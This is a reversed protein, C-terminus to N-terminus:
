RSHINRATSLQKIRGRNAYRLTGYCFTIFVTPVSKKDSREVSSYSMSTGIGTQEVVRIV